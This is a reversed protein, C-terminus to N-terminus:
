IMYLMWECGIKGGSKGHTNGHNEWGVYTKEWRNEQWPGLLGGVMAGGGCGIALM